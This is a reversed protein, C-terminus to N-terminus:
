YQTSSLLGHTEHMYSHSNDEAMPLMQYACLRDVLKLVDTPQAIPLCSCAAYHVVHVMTLRCSKCNMNLIGEDVLKIKSM